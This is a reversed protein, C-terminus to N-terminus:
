ARARDAETQGSQKTGDKQREYAYRRGSRHRWGIGIAAAAVVFVAGAAAQTQFDSTRTLYEAHLPPLPPPSRHSHTHAKHSPPPEGEPPPPSPKPPSSSSSFVPLSASASVTPITSTAATTTSSPSMSTQPSASRVPATPSAPTYSHLSSHDTPANSRLLAHPADLHAGWMPDLAGEADFNLRANQALMEVQYDFWLGAEPARPEGDHYLGGISDKGACGQDFRPCDTGDPLVATCGDSEGPTKLWFFADVVEPLHTNMTPVHGAGAGRINCWSSCSQRTEDAGNRSTDIVFHPAWGTKRIFHQRLTQAYNLESPGGSNSFLLRCPDTGCCTEADAYHWKCWEGLGVVAGFKTAGTDAFAERPCLSDLGLSQYNAVNTSFGRILPLVGLDSILDVFAAANNEFGMWGGHAADVYMAVHPAAAAITTIAYTVGEKYNTVTAASCGNKGLNSIVNGLSDPEIILVVPVSSYQVLVEVFPDVYDRKYEQLAADAGSDVFRIEGNSAKANCDRNPLDYFVFVCLPPPTASAAADALIGELTNRFGRIKRKNDIWFASPVKQMRRLTDIVTASGTSRAITQELNSVLTPNVYWSSSAFPNQRLVNPLLPSPPPAPACAECKGCSQQQYDHCTGATCWVECGPRGVPDQLSTPQLQAPPPAPACVDCAGCNQWQYSECTYATCWLECGADGVPDSSLSPPPAPACVACNGCKQQQCTYMSCWTECGYASPLTCLVLAIWCVLWRLRTPATHCCVQSAASISAYPEM